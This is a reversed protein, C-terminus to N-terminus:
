AAQAPLTLAVEAGGSPLNRATISGGLHRMILRDLYLDLGIGEHTFDLSDDGRKFADFLEEPDQKFGQGSDRITLTATDKHQNASVTITGGTNNYEAANALVSGVVRGLLHKDQQLTIGHEHRDVTIQKEKLAYSLEELAQNVLQTTTFGTITVQTSDVTAFLKFKDMLKELRKTGDGVMVVFKEEAPLKHQLAGLLYVDGALLDYTTAVFQNKARDLEARRRLAEALLEKRRKRMAKLRIGTYLLIIAVVAIGVQELLVATHVSQEGITSAAWNGLVTLLISLGIPLWFIPSRYLKSREVAVDPMTIAQLSENGTTQAIIQETKQQLNKVVSGLTQTAEAYSEGLKSALMESSASIITIPTRLYHACLQLFNDKDEATRKERDLIALLMHVQQLEKWAQWLLIAAIVMVIGFLSNSIVAPTAPSSFIRKLSEGIDDFFDGLFSAGAGGSASGSGTANNQNPSSIGDGQGDDVGGSGANDGDPNIINGGSLSEDDPDASPNTTGGGPNTPSGPDPASTVQFPESLDEALIASSAGVLRVLGYYSQGVTLAPSLMSLEYAGTGIHQANTLLAIPGVPQMASNVIQVTGQVADKPIQQEQTEIQFTISTESAYTSPATIATQWPSVAVIRTDQSMEGTISDTAQIDLTFPNDGAQALVTAPEYSIQSTSEYNQQGLTTGQGNRWTLQWNVPRLANNREERADATFSARGIVNGQHNRAFLLANPVFTNTFNQSSVIDSANLQLANVVVDLSANAIAPNDVGATWDSATIVPTGVASDRYHLNIYSLGEPVTFTAASQWPGAPSLSFEGSGASVTLRVPFGGPGANTPMDASDQIQLTVIGSAQNKQATLPPTTPEIFVLKAPPGAPNGLVTIDAQQGTVGNEDTVGVTKEGASMFAIGNTFTHIGKDKSPDFTYSEPVIADGDSSSFTITGDYWDIVFNDSDVAAVVASSPNGQYQPDSINTVLFHSLVQREITQTQTTAIVESPNTSLSNSVRITPAGEQADRYYFSITSENAPMVASSIGWPGGTNQAFEGSAATSRLYLTTDVTVITPRGYRNLSQITMASSPHRATITQSASTFALQAFAGPIVEIAKTGNQLGTDPSEPPASVDSATITAAGLTDDDRYYFAARSEGTPITVLQTDQWPGATEESFGATPSSSSLYVPQNSPAEIEFDYANQLVVYNPGDIGGRELEANGGTIVLKAPAGAVITTTQTANALGIDPNDLPSKDSVTLTADGLTTDRYYFTATTTSGVIQLSTVQNTLGPDTYFRGTPSSSYLYVSMPTPAFNTANGFEDVAQVTMASSPQNGELTQPSTIFQMGKLDKAYVSATAAGDELNNAADAATLIANTATFQRYYVTVSSSGAPITAETITPADTNNTAKYEGDGVSSSLNVVVDVGANIPTDYENHLVITLPQLQGAAVNFTNPEIALATEAGETITIQQTADTLGTDTMGAHDRAHLTPNGPKTDRYTVDVSSQGAPIIVSSPTFEGTASSASFYISTDEDVAAVNGYIDTASVTITDSIQGAVITQPASTFELAVAASYIIEIDQAASNLGVSSLTMTCTGPATDRYYFYMDSEGTPIVASTIPNWAGGSALSFEGTGCSSTFSVETDSGAEAVNGYADRLEVKMQSSEESTHITQPTTIFVLSEPAGAEVTLDQYTEVLGVGPFGYMYPTIRKVGTTLSTVYFSASSQGRPITIETIPDSGMDPESLYIIEDGGAGTWFTFTRDADQIAPANDTKQLQVTIVSTLNGAVITQPATIFALKSAQQGVINIDTSANLIDEDPQELPTKDSATITAEGLATDRYYFTASTNGAAIEVSTTNWPGSTSTGFTGTDSDTYLYVTTDEDPMTVNGYVDHTSVVFSSSAETVPVSSPGTTFALAYVAGGGVVIDTSGAAWGQSPTEEATVTNVGGETSRYYFTKSSEGEDLSVSIIPTWPSETLSFEGVGDLSFETDALVPTEIGDATQTQLTVAIPENATTNGSSSLDIRGVIGEVVRINQNVSTLANGLVSLTHTGVTSDSYYVAAQSADEAFPVSRSSSTWNAEDLSWEGTGSSTSVTASFDAPASAPNGYQDQLEITIPASAVNKAIIQPASTVVYAAPTDAVVMPQYSTQRSPTDTQHAAIIVSGSKTDRYQSTLSSQGATITGSLTASWSVGDSSFKGTESSTSLTIPVTDDAVTPNDFDDLLSVTVAQPQGATFPTPAAIFGINGNYSGAIVTLDITSTPFDATEASVTPEGIEMDRYYVPANSTGAAIVVDASSTWPGNTSASFGGQGSTTSFSVNVSDTAVTTNGYVDHLYAVLQEPENVRIPDAVPLFEVAVPEGPGITITTTGSDYPDASNDIATLVLERAETDSVYVTATAGGAPIVTTINTTPDSGTPDASFRATGSDSELRVSVNGFSTVDNGVSDQLHVTVPVWEGVAAGGPATVGLQAPDGVGVTVSQSANIWGFDAGTGEDDRMTIIHTGTTADKYYISAATAGAPITIQFPSDDTWGEQGDTSFAGTDSSSYVYITTDSAVPIPLGNVDQTQVTIASSNGDAPFSQPQTIIELKSITGANPPTVSIDCQSGSISSSETDTATVCWEGQTRMSVGNVFTHLGLMEPTFTFDAPLLASADTSTFQITGTYDTQPQGQYDVAQVTISSPIGAQVPDTVGTVLLKYRPGITQQQQVQTNNPDTVTITPTGELNDKYYFTVESQGAPLVVSDYNWRTSDDEDLDRAFFGSGSDTDLHLTIDENSAVPNGAEDRVQITLAGPETAAVNLPATIFVYADPYYTFGDVLTAMQGHEDAIVVDVVGPSHPPVIAKLTTSNVFEVETASTGGFTVDYSPGDALAHLSHCLMWGGSSNAYMRVGEATEGPNLILEGTSDGSGTGIGVAASTLQQKTVWSGDQYLQIQVEYPATNSGCKSWQIKEITYMSDFMSQVWQGTGGMGSWYTTEDTDFAKDATHTQYESSATATAGNSPQAVDKSAFNTGTITVETGGAMVDTDPSIGSVGPPPRIFTFGNIATGSQGDPNTVIVNKTGGSSPPTVVTLTSSNVFTVDEAEINGFKVTAGSVFHSGSITVSDGGAMSGSNPSIGSISPPPIYTFGNTLTATQGDYGTVSVDVTGAAHAPVTATATTSNLTQINTASVGDFSIDLLTSNVSVRDTLWPLNYANPKTGTVSASYINTGSYLYMKSGILAWSSNSANFSLTIGTNTWTTPDSTSATYVSTGSYIYLKDGIIGLASGSSSSSITGPLTKGSDTWTAPDSVPATYIKNGSYFYLTSDIKAILPYRQAGAITKGTNTWVLPNSTSASYIATGTVYYMTNGVMYFGVGESSSPMSAGTTSWTTPDSVPARWIATSTYGGFMYVYDGIVAVQTCCQAAPLTKGTNTMNAPNSLPASYIVNTSAYGGFLYVKDGIVALSRYNATNATTGASTWSNSTTDYPALDPAFNSGTITVNTGGTVPGFDPSVETVIPALDAYVTVTVNQLEVQQFGDSRFFARIYVDGTGFQSAFEDIHDNLEAVTNADDITNSVTIAAWGGGNWWYWNIGDPSLRYTVQGANNGGLQQTFGGLNVYSIPNTSTVYPADTAYTGGGLDILRLTGANNQIKSPDNITFNSASLTVQSRKTDSKGGDTNTHDSVVIFLVVTVVALVLCAIFAVGRVSSVYRGLLTGIKYLKAKLEEFKQSEPHNM